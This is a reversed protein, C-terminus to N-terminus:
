IASLVLTKATPDFFGSFMRLVQVQVQWGAVALWLWGAVALWLWGAMSVSVCLSVPSSAM